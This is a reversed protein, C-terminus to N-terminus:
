KDIVTLMAVVTNSNVNKTQFPQQGGVSLRASGSGPVPAGCNEDKPTNAPCLSSIEKTVFSWVQLQDPKVVFRLKKVEGPFLPIREFGVLQRSAAKYKGDFNEEVKTGYITLWDLYVQVVEEAAQFGGNVVEVTFTFGVRASVTLAPIDLNRYAFGSGGSGYNYSLGYGFPFTIHQCNSSTGNDPCISFQNFRYTHNSVDYNTIEPLGSLSEYWTFPLRGAPTWWYGEESYPSIEFDDSSEIEGPNGLLMRAAIRGAEQGPYGFWLISKVQPSAVAVSINVPAASYIFVVVPVSPAHISILELMRQQQGFLQLSPNDRSEDVFRSGTGITAVIADIKDQTLNTLLKVLGVEDGITCRAGNDCFEFTHVTDVVEHLGKDLPFEFQPMPTAPYSGILEDMSKAFPGILALNKLKKSFPLFHNLNKLLVTARCGAILSLRRHRDSQIFDDKNLKAFPQDDPPDFEGQRMRALFLPRNMDELQYRKIVGSQVLLPLASYVGIAVEQSNEINTGANFAANAAELYTKFAKHRSVMFQLAGEDSIVFGKFGMMGRLVNILLWRNACNPIGNIGNYSCMVSQAIGDALCGKFAPLFTLWIDAASVNAEFSLRSVPLNEPGSHVAFHKCSAATLFIHEEDVYKRPLKGRAPLGSLGRVFANSLEGSLYPDEGLTEQNRGWLPHRLINVVPSFCHIGKHDQYEGNRVYANYKARAEYGTANAMAHILDRDFSAAFSIAQPFSTADGDFGYGHLCESRWQYPGIGLYSIAPAPGHAAGAGGYQLQQTLEELTLRNLLDAVRESRSLSTNRFPLLDSRIQLILLNLVLLNLMM